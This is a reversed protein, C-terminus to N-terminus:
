FHSIQWHTINQVFIELFQVKYVCVGCVCVCVCVCVSVCVSLCVCVCVCECVCVCVCVCESVCVVCVCWVSVCV